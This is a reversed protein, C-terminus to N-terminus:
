QTMLDSNSIHADTSTEQNRQEFRAQSSIVFDQKHRNMKAQLVITNTESDSNSSEDSSPEEDVTTPLDTSVM